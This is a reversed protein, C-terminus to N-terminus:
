SPLIREPFPHSSVNHHIFFERVSNETQCMENDEEDDSWDESASLMTAKTDSSSTDRNKVVQIIADKLEVLAIEYRITYAAIIHQFPQSLPISPSCRSSEQCTQYIQKEYAFQLDHASTSYIRSIGDIIDSPCGAQLLTADISVPSPLKVQPIDIYPASNRQPADVDYGTSAIFDKLDQVAAIISQYAAANSSVAM